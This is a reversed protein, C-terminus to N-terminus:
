KFVIRGDVGTRVTKIKELYEIVANTMLPGDHGPVIERVNNFMEYGDGGRSMFDNTAVRYIHSDDLPKGGTEVSLVRQGVPRSPDIVVKLGSVQPFRGAARPLYSVGNEIAARVSKGTLELVAIHNNFPLEAMVDRRTITSGAPYVRGSRIGGGNTIAIEADAEARIADAILNGIAAEQSRVTANRSDLEVATTAIPVDLAASLKKEYGQVVALVEPDPTVTRTDIIRFDPHWAVERRGENTRQTFTVDICTVFHADYSSEIAATRGDYNLWLDHDHGSLIIDATRLRYMADDKARDTHVCAVVIDAGDKRLAVAQRDITEVAREFKLDGPSSLIVAEEDTAAAIGIRIGDSTLITRERMGKALTGDPNLINACFLPFKAEAMRKFFIEKGFDFEHNGPVFVDPALMNTLVMIHEGQDIGSMLSPSLTDGAHVFIVPGKAREAKVVAALRAFGGHPQGDPAPQESMQYIDNVLVFTVRSRTTQASSLRPLSAILALASSGLLLLRRTLRMKMM